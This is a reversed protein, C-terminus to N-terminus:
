KTQTLKLWESPLKITRGNELPIGTINHLALSCYFVMVPDKSNLMDILPPIARKDGIQGLSNCVERKVEAEVDQYLIEILKNTTISLGKKGLARIAEIKVKANSNRLEEMLTDLVAPIDTYDKLLSITYIKVIYSTSKKHIALIEDIHERTNKKYNELKYIWFDPDDEYKPKVSCSTFLFICEM